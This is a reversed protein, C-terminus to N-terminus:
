ILYIFHWIKCSISVKRGQLNHLAMKIESFSRHKIEFTSYVKGIQDTYHADSSRIMSNNKNGSLLPLIEEIKCSASIEIGDISLDPPIFGLQSLISYSPRDIHAPIIIGGLAHVKREIQEISQDLASILLYDIQDTIQEDADVVVQFGFKDTDNPIPPLHMELYDQFESLQDDNEFFTLCHVEERTTVEAGMLVFIGAPQALQKVLKCHRTTNHDTIGIIDLGKESAKEIIKLPSMDLSGCPSLVTHIHLDARYTNM